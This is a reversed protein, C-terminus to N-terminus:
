FEGKKWHLLDEILENPIKKNHKKLIEELRDKDPNKEDPRHHEPESTQLKELLKKMLDREKKDIFIKEEVKEKDKFLESFNNLRIKSFFNFVSKNKVFKILNSNM